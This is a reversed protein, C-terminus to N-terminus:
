VKKWTPQKKLQKYDVRLGHCRIVKKGLQRKTLNEDYILVNRVFRKLSSMSFASLEDLRKVTKSDVTWVVSAFKPKRFPNVLHSSQELKQKFFEPCCHYLRLAKEFVFPDVFDRDEDTLLHHAIYQCLVKVTVSEDIILQKVMRM